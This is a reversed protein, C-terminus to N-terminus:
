RLSVNSVEWSLKRLGKVIEAKEKGALPWVAHVLAYVFTYATARDGVAFTALLRWVCAPPHATLHPVKQLWEISLGKLVVTLEDLCPM